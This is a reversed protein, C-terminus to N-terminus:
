PETVTVSCPMRWDKSRVRTMNLQPFTVSLSRNPFLKTRRPSSTSSIYAPM